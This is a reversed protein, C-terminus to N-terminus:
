RGGTRNSATLTDTAAKHTRGRKYMDGVFVEIVKNAFNGDNTENTQVNIKEGSYNHVNVTTNGGGGLMLDKNSTVTGGSPSMLYNKNGTTLMEPRGDETVPYLKGGDVNGGYLRGSGLPISNTASLAQGTAIAGGLAATGIASAGGLTAISALTAATSWAAASQAAAANSAATASGIGLAAAAAQGAWYRIVSGLLQTAITSALNSLMGRVSDGQVLAEALGSSFSDLASIGVGRFAEDISQGTLQAEQRLQQMREIQQTLEDVQETTAEDGLAMIATELEYQESTLNRKLELLQVEQTIRDLNAQAQQQLAASDQAAWLERYGNALKQIEVRSKGAAVGQEWLSSIFSARQSETSELALMGSKWKSVLSDFERQAQASSAKLEENTKALTKAADIRDFAANIKDIAEALNIAPNEAAATTAAYIAMERESMGFTKAQLEVQDILKGLSDAAEAAKKSSTDFGKALRESLFDASKGARIAAEASRIISDIVEQADKPLDRLGARLSTITQAFDQVDQASKSSQELKEFASAVDSGFLFAQEGSLNFQEGFASLDSYARLYARGASDTVQEGSKIADEYRSIAAVSVDAVDSLSEKIADVSATIANNAEAIGIEAKAIALDLNTRALADLDDSLGVVGDGTESTTKDLAKLAEDLRETADTSDFLSPVLVSGLAASIGVVAGLMPAGLVFGIDAAQQSFAVMPNTGATVQGVLQQIQIGAQGASRSMGGLNKSLGASAKGTDKSAGNFRKAGRTARDFDSEIKRTSRDVTKEAKLLGATDADVYYEISGVNESM